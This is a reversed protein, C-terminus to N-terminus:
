SGADAAAAGAAADPSPTLMIRTAGQVQTSRTGRACHGTSEIEFHHAAFMGASFGAPLTTGLHRLTVSVSDDTGPLPQFSLGSSGTAPLTHLRALGAQLGLSSLANARQQLVRTSALMEGYLADHLASLGLLAVLALMIMVTATAFGRADLKM